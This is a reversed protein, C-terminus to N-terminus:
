LMPPQVADLVYPVAKGCGVMQRGCVAKAQESLTINAMLVDVLCKGIMGTAGSILISKGELKEWPLDGEAIRKIEREYITM